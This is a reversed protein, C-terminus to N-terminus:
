AGRVTTLIARVEDTYAGLWSGASQEAVPILFPNARINHGPWGNHIVPAYVLTSGVVADGAEVRGVISAALRGSRHPAADRARLEVERAAKGPATDLHDLRASAARLTAALTAAGEVETRSM